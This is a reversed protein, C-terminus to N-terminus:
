YALIIRYYDGNCTQLVISENDNLDMLTDGNFNVIELTECDFYSDRPIDLFVKLIISKKRVVNIM